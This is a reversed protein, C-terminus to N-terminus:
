DNEELKIHTWTNGISIDSIIGRSVKFDRAIDAQKYGRSLLKKIELVKENTLKAMPRTHAYGKPPNCRKKEKMDAMNQKHTGLFLHEINVCSRNDCKHLVHLVNTPGRKSEWAYRHASIAKGKNKIRGYGDSDKAGIFNHCGTVEDVKVNLAFREEISINRYEWAKM